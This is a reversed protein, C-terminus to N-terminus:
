TSASRTITGEGRRPRRGYLRAGQRAQTGGRRHAQGCRHFDSQRVAGPIGLSNTLDFHGLWLMSAKSRQSKRSTRLGDENRDARHRSRAIPRAGNPAATARTYNDHSVSRRAAAAPPPIGRPGCSGGRKSPGIDVMPVMIGMAGPDLVRAIFHYETVGPVRGDARIPHRQGAVHGAAHPDDRISFGTHEMDFIAYEAGGNRLIQAIGPVFFEFIMTGLVPEGALARERISKQTM